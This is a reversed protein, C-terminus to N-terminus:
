KLIKFYNLFMVIIGATVYIDVLPTVIYFIVNLVAVNKLLGALITFVAGLVVYLITKVILNSLNVTEFSFPWYKKLFDM